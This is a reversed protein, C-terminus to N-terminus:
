PGPEDGPLWLCVRVGGGAINEIEIGGGHQEMIRHVVSLGLGVGFSKTSFLPEFVKPLVEPPIGPGTDEFVLEIRGAAAGTRVTLHHEGNETRENGDAIMAQCANDFVNIVARRLRDREVGIHTGPLGFEHLLTIGRPLSQEKLVGALWDDIATTEPVLESIRTFDLMEDIIRDCRVVNREIRELSREVRPPVRNLGERVVFASTRIVGLPNRLEHSVTAILQGLMALREQRLLEAQAARLEATQEEVRRQLEERLEEDRRRVDTIDSGVGRYGVFRGQADFVPKASTLFYRIQGDPRVWRHEFSRFAQRAELLRNFERWREVEQAELEPLIQAYLEPRTHGIISEAPMGSYHEYSPSVYTYRFDSDM